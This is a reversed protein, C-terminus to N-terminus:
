GHQNEMVVVYLHPKKSWKNAHIWEVTSEWDEDITLKDDLDLHWFKAKGIEPM